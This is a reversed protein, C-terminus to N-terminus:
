EVSSKKTLALECKFLRNIREAFINEGHHNSFPLRSVRELLMGQLEASLGKQQQRAKRKARVARVLGVPLQFFPYELGPGLVLRSLGDPVMWLFFLALAGNGSESAHLFTIFGLMGGVVLEMTSMFAMNEAMNESMSSKHLKPKPFEFADDFFEKQSLLIASELADLAKSRASRFETVFRENAETLMQNEAADAILYNATFEKLLAEMEFVANKATIQDLKSWKKRLEIMREEFGNRLFAIRDAQYRYKEEHAGASIMQDHEYLTMAMEGAYAAHWFQALFQIAPPLDSPVSLTKQAKQTYHAELKLFDPGAMVSAPLFGLIFAIRIVWGAIHVPKVLFLGSRM